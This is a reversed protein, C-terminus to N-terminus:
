VRGVHVRSCYDLVFLVIFRLRGILMCSRVIYCETWVGCEVSWAVCSDIVPLAPYRNNRDNVPLDSSLAADSLTVM